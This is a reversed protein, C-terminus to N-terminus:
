NEKINGLIKRQEVRRFPTGKESNVAMELRYELTLNPLDKDHIAKNLVPEHIVPEIVVVGKEGGHWIYKGIDIINADKFYRILLGVIELLDPYVGAIVKLSLIYGVWAPAEYTMEDVILKEGNKDVALQGIDSVCLFVAAKGKTDKVAGNEVSFLGSEGGLVSLNKYIKEYCVRLVSSQSM